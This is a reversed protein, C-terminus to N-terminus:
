VQRYALLYTDYGEHNLSRESVGMERLINLQIKKKMLNHIIILSKLQEKMVFDDIIRDCPNAQLHVTYTGCLLVLEASQCVM